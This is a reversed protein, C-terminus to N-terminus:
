CPLSSSGVGLHGHHGLPQPHLTEAPDRGLLASSMGWLWGATSLTGLAPLACCSLGTGQIPHIPSQLAGRSYCHRDQCRHSGEWLVWLKQPWDWGSQM